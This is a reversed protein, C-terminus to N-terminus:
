VRALVCMIQVYATMQLVTCVDFIITTINLLFIVFNYQKGTCPGGDPGTYGATCECNTVLFGGESTTNMPCSQCESGNFGGYMNSGCGKYHIDNCWSLYMSPKSSVLLSVPDSTAEFIFSDNYHETTTFHTQARITYTSNSAPLTTIYSRYLCLSIFYVSM